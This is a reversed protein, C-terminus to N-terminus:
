WVYTDDAKKFTVMMRQSSSRCTKGLLGGWNGNGICPRVSFADPYCECTETPSGAPRVLLETSGTWCKGVVWIHSECEVVVATGEHNAEETRLARAIKNTKVVDRCTAYAHSGDSIEVWAM